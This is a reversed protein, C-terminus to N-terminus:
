SLNELIIRVIHSAFQKRIEQGRIGQLMWPFLPTRLLETKNAEHATM